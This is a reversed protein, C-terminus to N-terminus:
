KVLFNSKFYNEVYLRQIFSNVLSLFCQECREMFMLDQQKDFSLIYEDYHVRKKNLMLVICGDIIINRKTRLMYRYSSLQLFYKYSLHNSTKFDVLYIKGNIMVLLDLTGGFFECTLEEESYIVEIVNNKCLDDWWMYFSKTANTVEDNICLPIITYKLIDQKFKVYSEIAQHTHTGISASRELIDSYKQKRYLGMRNSWDMLFDDHLMCNLIETTRPVYYGNYMYKKNNGIENYIEMDDKTLTIENMIM